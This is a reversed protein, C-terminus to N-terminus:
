IWKRWSKGRLLTAPVVDMPFNPIGWPWCYNWITRSVGCWALDSICNSWRPRPRCRPRKGTAKALLAQRVLRESSM